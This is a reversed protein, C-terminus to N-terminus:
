YKIQVAEKAMRNTMIRTLIRQCTKSIRSHQGSRPVADHAASGLTRAGVVKKWKLMINTYLPM